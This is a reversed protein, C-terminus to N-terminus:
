DAPNLINKRLRDYTEDTVLEYEEDLEELIEIKLAVRFRQWWILLEISLIYIFILGVTVFNTTISYKPNINEVIKLGIPTYTVIITILILALGIGFRMWQWNGFLYKKFVVLKNYNFFDKEKLYIKQSVTILPKAVRVLYQWIIINFVLYIFLLVAALKYMQFYALYCLVSFIVVLTLISSIMKWTMKGKKPVSRFVEAENKLDMRLGFIWSFFYIALTFKYLNDSFLDDLNPIKINSFSLFLYFLPLLVAVLWLINKLNRFFRAKARDNTSVQNAQNKSDKIKKM